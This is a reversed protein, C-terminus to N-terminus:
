NLLTYNQKVNTRTFKQKLINTLEQFVMTLMLIVGVCWAFCHQKQVERPGHDLEIVMKIVVNSASIM